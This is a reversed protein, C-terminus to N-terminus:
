SGEGNCVKCINQEGRTGKWYGLGDCSKCKKASFLQIFSKVIFYGLALTILLIIIRIAM